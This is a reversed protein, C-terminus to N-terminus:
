LLWKKMGFDIKHKNHQLFGFSVPSLNSWEVIKLFESELITFFSKMIEIGKYLLGNYWGLEILVSPPTPM